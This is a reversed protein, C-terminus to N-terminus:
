SMCTKKVTLGFFLAQKALKIYSIAQDKSIEPYTM